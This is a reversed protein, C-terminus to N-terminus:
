PFLPLDRLGEHAETIRLANFYWAGCCLDQAQSKRLQVRRESFLGPTWVLPWDSYIEGFNWKAWAVERESVSVPERAGGSVLVSHRGGDSGGRVILGELNIRPPWVPRHTHSERREAESHVTAGGRFEKWNREM